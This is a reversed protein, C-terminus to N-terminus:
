GDSLWLRIGFAIAGTASVGAVWLVVFWLFRKGWFTSGGTM